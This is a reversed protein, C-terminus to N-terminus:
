GNTETRAVWCPNWPQMVKNMM